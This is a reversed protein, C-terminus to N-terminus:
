IIVISTTTAVVVKGVAIAPVIAVAAPTFLLIQAISIRTPIVVVSTVATAIAAM